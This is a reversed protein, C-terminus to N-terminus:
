QKSKKADKSLYNFIKNKRKNQPQKQEEKKKKNLLNTRLHNNFKKQRLNM